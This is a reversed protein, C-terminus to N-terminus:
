QQPRFHHIEDVRHPTTTSNCASRFVQFEAVLQYDLVGLVFPSSERPPRIEPLRRRNAPFPSINTRPITHARPTSYSAAGSNKM